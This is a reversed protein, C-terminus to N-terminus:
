GPGGNREEWLWGFVEVCRWRWKGLWGGLRRGEGGGKGWGVRVTGDASTVCDKINGDAGAEAVDYLVARRLAGCRLLDLALGVVALGAASQRGIGGGRAGGTLGVRARSSHAPGLEEVFGGAWDM